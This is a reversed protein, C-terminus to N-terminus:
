HRTVSCAIVTFLNWSPRTRAWRLVTPSTASESIFEDGSQGSRPQPGWSASLVSATHNLRWQVCSTVVHIWLRFYCKLVDPSPSFLRRLPSLRALYWQLSWTKRTDPACFITPRPCSQLNQLPVDMSFAKRVFIQSLKRSLTERQLPFLRTGKTLSRWPNDGKAISRFDLFRQPGRPRQIVNEHSQLDIQYFDTKGWVLVIFHDIVSFMGRIIFRM